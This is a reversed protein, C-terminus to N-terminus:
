FLTVIQHNHVSLKIEQFQKATKKTLKYQFKIKFM